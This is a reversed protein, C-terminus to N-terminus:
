LGLQFGSEEPYHTFMGLTTDGEMDTEVHITRDRNEPRGKDEELHRVGGSCFSDGRM